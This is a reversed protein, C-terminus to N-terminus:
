ASPVIVRIPEVVTGRRFNHAREVFGATVEYGRGVLLTGHAFRVDEAIIMGVRLAAVPLDRIEQKADNVGRVQSLAALVTAEYAGSHSRLIDLIRSPAEGRAEWTDYDIAVRLIQGGRIALGHADQAVNSALPPHSRPYAKLIERVAELRPIHELLQETVQPARAVMAEEDRTLSEGLHMREVTEQPLAICGLQCLMAAVEIPWQPVLGMAQALAAALQRIRIARGFVTPNALALVDTLAKISGHLTQELLVREATVLRSQHAAAAVAALLAAPPCPKTLFRFIQGENVAQAAADMDAHGTLLLRVADPAVLRARGLFAAGDMGPMRMDSLIVAVGPERGLLDLAAAGTTARLVHYRRRLHLELGDIVHPEDDVCLVRTPGDVTM